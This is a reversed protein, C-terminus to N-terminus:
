RIVNVRQNKHHKNSSLNCTIDNFYDLSSIDSSLSVRVSHSHSQVTYHLGAEAIGSLKRKPDAVKGV